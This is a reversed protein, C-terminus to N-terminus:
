VGKKGDEYVAATYEDLVELTQGLAVAPVHNNIMRRLKELLEAARGAPIYSNSM